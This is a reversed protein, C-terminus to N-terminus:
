LIFMITLSSGKSIGQVVPFGWRGEKEWGQVVCFVGWRSPSFEIMNTREGNGVVWGPTSAWSSLKQPYISGTGAGLQCM